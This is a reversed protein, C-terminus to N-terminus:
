NKIINKSIAANTKLPIEFIGLFLVYFHLPKKPKKSYLM